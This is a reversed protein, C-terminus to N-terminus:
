RRVPIIYRVKSLEFITPDNPFTQIVYIEANKLKSEKAGESLNSVEAELQEITKAQPYNSLQAIPLIQSQTEKDACFFSLPEKDSFYPRDYFFYSKSLKNTNVNVSWSTSGGNLIGKQVKIYLLEQSQVKLTFLCLIVILLFLNKKM